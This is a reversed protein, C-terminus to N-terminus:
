NKTLGVVVEAHPTHPFMDILVVDTACYGQSVLVKIDRALSNPGCSVYVVRSGPVLTALGDLVAAACGSRPPDVIVADIARDGMSAAFSAADTELVKVHFANLNALNVRADNAAAGDREVLTVQECRARHALGFVGVGAYLDALHHIKSPLLSGVVEILTQALDHRTQLFSTPGVELTLEGFQIRQIEAGALHVTEPGLAAGGAAPNINAFVGSVGEIQMLAESIDEFRVRRNVVMTLLGEGIQPDVRYLVARLLGPHDADKWVSIEPRDLIQRAKELVDNVLPHQTDCADPSVLDHSGPRFFGLRLPGRHKRAMMLARTRYGTALQAHPWLRWNADATLEGILARIQVERALQQASLAVMQWPCGGCQLVLPCPAVVRDPSAKELSHLVGWTQHQGVHSILFEGEDGPVGGVVRVEVGDILALAGEGDSLAVVHGHHMTNPRLHPAKTVAPM